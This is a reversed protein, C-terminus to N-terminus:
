ESKDWNIVASCDFFSQDLQVHGDFKRIEFPQVNLIESNGQALKIGDYSELIISFVIKKYAKKDNAFEGYIEVFGFDDKVCSFNQIGVKAGSLEPDQQEPTPQNKQSPQNDTPLNEFINQQLIENLKPEAQGDHIKKFMVDAIQFVLSSNVVPYDEYVTILIALDNYICIIMHIEDLSAPVVNKQNNYMCDGTEESTGSMDSQEFFANYVRPYKDVFTRADVNSEYKYLEMLIYPVQRENYIPEYPRSNDFLIKGVSSQILMSEAARYQFIGRAYNDFYKWTFPEFEKREDDNPFYTLLIQKETLPTPQASIIYDSPELEIFKEKILFSLIDKFENVSKTDNAWMKADQKIWFPLEPIPDNTLLFSPAQFKENAYIVDVNYIGPVSESSIEFTVYNDSLTYLKSLTGDPSNIIIQSSSGKKSLEEPIVWRLNILDSEICTICEPDEPIKITQPKLTEEFLSYDSLPTALIDQKILYEIILFFEQNSLNSDAWLETPFKLWAPISEKKLQELRNKETEINVQNQKDFLEQLREEFTKMEELEDEDFNKIVYRKNNYFEIDDITGIIVGDSTDTEILPFIRFYQLDKVNNWGETYQREILTEREFSENSFISVTLFSKMKRYEIWITTDKEPLSKEREFQGKDPESHWQLYFGLDYMLMIRTMDVGTMYAAGLGWQTIDGHTIDPQGFPTPKSFLGILLQSWSSDKGQKFEDFTLKYRLVWDEGIEEGLLKEFDISASELQREGSALTNPSLYFKGVGDEIKWYPNNGSELGYWNKSDEFNIVIDPIAIDSESDEDQAYISHVSSLGLILMFFILLPSQTM